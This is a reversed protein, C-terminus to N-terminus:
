FSETQGVVKPADVVLNLRDSHVTVIPQSINLAAFPSNSPIELKSSVIGFSSDVFAPFILLNNGQCSFASASLKLPLGFNQRNYDLKCLLQNAQSVTVSNETWSFQALEKPLGWVERGGAVSDPNDVYIHSVWGGFKGEYSLFGAIIILESYELVSGSSYQSLYVGGITKGPLVSIINLETPILPRVRAIDLLQLSVFADGKLTWPPQPYSM